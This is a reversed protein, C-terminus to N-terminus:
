WSGAMPNDFAAVATEIQEAEESATLETPIDIINGDADFKYGAELMAREWQSEAERANIELPEEARKARPKKVRFRPDTKLLEATALDRAVPFGGAKLYTLLKHHEDGCWNEVIQKRGAVPDPTEYLDSVRIDINESTAMLEQEAARAAQCYSAAALAASLKETANKLIPPRTPPLLHPHNQEIWSVSTVRWSSRNAVTASTAGYHPAGTAVTTTTGTLPPLSTPMAGGMLNMVVSVDQMIEGTKGSSTALADFIAKTRDNDM